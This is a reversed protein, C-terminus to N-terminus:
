SLPIRESQQPQPQRIFTEDDICGYYQTLPHHTTIPSIPQEAVTSNALSLSEPQLSEILLRLLVWRDYASRQLVQAQLESLTLAINSDM